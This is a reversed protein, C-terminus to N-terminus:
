DWAPSRYDPDRHPIFYEPPIKYDPAELEGSDVLEMEERWLAESQRVGRKIVDRLVEDGDVTHGFEEYSLQEVSVTGLVLDEMERWVESEIVERQWHGNEPNFRGEHFFGMFVVEFPDLDKYEAVAVRLDDWRDNNIFRDWEADDLRYYSSLAFEGTELDVAGFIELVNLYEIYRRDFRRIARRGEPSIEFVHRRSNGPDRLLGRMVMDAVHDALVADEGPFTVKLPYQHRGLQDLVLIDTLWTRIEPSFYRVPRLPAIM